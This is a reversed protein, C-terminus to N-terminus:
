EAKPKPTKPAPALTNFRSERKVKAVLEEEERLLTPGRGLAFFGEAKASDGSAQLFIGYYLAAEPERLQEASFAEMTEVADYVKEQLFLSLAYTVACAIDTPHDKFLAAALQDTSGEDMHRLLSLRIFNNRAAPNKPRAKVILRSLRHLEASDASKRAITWLADLVWLPTGEDASLKRLALEARADWRWAQALRVLIALRGPQEQCEEIARAWTTEAAVVSGFNELAHALHALRVHELNKWSATEVLAKLKAWERGRGYADAVALSVPPTSALAPPLSPVWDSVLLPLNNQNMWGLLVSLQEPDQLSEDRLQELYKPADPANQDRLVSLRGIRESFPIGPIAVLRDALDRARAFEQHNMADEILAHLATLRHAPIQILSELTRSAADRVTTSRSRIQLTALNLRYEDSSPDLRAAESWHSEAKEVDRKGLAVKAALDHYTAGNRDAPKLVALADEATEIDGFKLADRAWSLANEVDGPRIINLRARWAIAEVSGQAELSKAITRNAEVDLPDFELARRGDVVARQYDKKQLGEAARTAHMNQVWEHYRSLLADKWIIGATVTAAIM